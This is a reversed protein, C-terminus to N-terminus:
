QGFAQPSQNKNEITQVENITERQDEKIIPGLWRPTMKNKPDPTM